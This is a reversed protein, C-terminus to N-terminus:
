KAAPDNGTEEIKGQVSENEAGTIIARRSIPVLKTGHGLSGWVTIYYIGDKGSNNIPIKANFSSGAVHVGGHVPIDSAPKIESGGMNGSMLIIPAALAVPPIFVGGAIAAVVGAAKLATIAGSYDKDSHHQYAVYDLPPFYPLAEESEDSGSGNGHKGEWAVTVREFQYPAAIEGKVDIKDGLRAVPPLPNMIGHSTVVEICGITKDGDATNGTALGIETAEVSFLADRDDQRGVLTKMMQAVAARTRKSSTTDSKKISVLSETIAGSGGALTYRRDPNDGKENSHSVVSRRCLEAVHDRAVKMAIEEPSLPAMSLKQREENILQLMYQVQQEPAIEAQNEPANALDEFYEVLPSTPQTTNLTTTPSEFRPIRDLSSGAGEATDSDGGLLIRKLRETRDFLSDAAFTKKLVAMELKTLRDEIPNQTFSSGFTLTEMKSVVPYVEGSGTGAGSATSATDAPEANTTGASPASNAPTALTPTLPSLKPAESGALSAPKAPGKGASSPAGNGGAKQTTGGKSGSATDSKHNSASEGANSGMKGASDSKSSTTASKKASAPPSADAPSRSTASTKSRAGPDQPKSGSNQEANGSTSTESPPPISSGARHVRTPANEPLTAPATVAQSPPSIMAERTADAQALVPLGGQAAVLSAAVVCIARRAQKKPYFQPAM